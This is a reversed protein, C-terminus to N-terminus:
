QKRNYVRDLVIRESATNVRVRVTLVSGNSNLTYTESGRVSGRTKSILLAEGNWGVEISWRNRMQRGWKYDAYPADEYQIGMSDTDQEISMKAAAVVPFDHVVFTASGTADPQRGSLARRQETQQIKSLDPAMDSSDEDLIWSGSLDFTKPIEYSISACGVILALALLIALRSFSDLCKM